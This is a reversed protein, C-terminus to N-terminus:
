VHASRADVDAPAASADEGQGSAQRKRRRRLYAGILAPQAAVFGVVLGSVVNILERSIGVSQLGVSGAALMGFFAAAALVGLPTLMGMLAIAIAQFGYGPSFSDLYRGYLGLIESAGALGALAGSGMLAGIQVRRVGVGHFSATTPNAGVMRLKFGAPTRYLFWGVAIVAAVALLVGSHIRTTETLAPLRAGDAVPDSASPQTASALGGGPAVLHRSLGFALYNFMITTVVEHVGRWAKLVAPIAAWAAGAAAGTLVAVPLHVAAPLDLNVGVAAAALGGVVLQGEVGINFLGAHFALAVALGGVLLPTAQVVTESLAYQDGVSGRLLAGYATVPDTGALYILPVAAALALALTGLFSGASLFPRSSLGQQIKIAPLRIM